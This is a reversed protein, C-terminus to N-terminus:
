GYKGLSAAAAYIRNTCSARKGDVGESVLYALGLSTAGRVFDKTPRMTAKKGYRLCTSEGPLAVSDGVNCFLGVARMCRVCSFM